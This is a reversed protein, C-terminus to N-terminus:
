MATLVATAKRRRVRKSATKAIMPVVAVSVLADNLIARSVSGLRFRELGRRQHTGLVILDAGTDSAVTLIHGDARGWCPLVRLDCAHHRIIEHVRKKLKEELARQVQSENETLSVPGRLGLRQREEPPWDVHVVTIHCRGSGTLMAVFRLAAKSTESFDDGVVIRLTHKGETWSKLRGPQRVVLTPVSASEATRVAIGGTLLRRTRGVAAVVILSAKRTNAVEALAKDAPGFAFAEEVEVGPARLSEALAQLEESQANLFAQGVEPPEAIVGPHEAAHILLLKAGLCRAIGAAVNTAEAAQESFDTGCIILSENTKM